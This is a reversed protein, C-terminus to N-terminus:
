PVYPPQDNGLPETQYQLYGFLQGKEIWFRGRGYLKTTRVLLPYARIILVTSPLRAVRNLLDRGTASRRELEGLHLRTVGDGREIRLVDHGPAPARAATPGGASPGAPQETALCTVGFAAVMAALVLVRWM